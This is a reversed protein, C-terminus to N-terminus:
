FIWMSQVHRARLRYRLLIWIIVLPWSGLLGPARSARRIAAFILLLLVNRRRLHARVWNHELFTYCLRRGARAISASLLNLISLLLFSLITCVILFVSSGILDRLILVITFIVLLLSLVCRSWILLLSGLFTGIWLRGTSISPLDWNVLAWISSRTLIARLHLM